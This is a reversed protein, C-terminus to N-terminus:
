DRAANSEEALVEIRGEIRDFYGRAGMKEFGFRVHFARISRFLDTHPVHPAVNPARRKEDIVRGKKPAEEPWFERAEWARQGVTRPAHFWAGPQTTSPLLSLSGIRRTIGKHNNHSCM